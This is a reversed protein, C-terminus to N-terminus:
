DEFKNDKVQQCCRAIYGVLYCFYEQNNLDIKAGIYEAICMAAHTSEHAINSTTMSKKSVFRIFVGGKNSIEDNAAEVVADTCDDIDSLNFRDLKGGKTIAIWIKMPYIGLTFEHIETKKKEM